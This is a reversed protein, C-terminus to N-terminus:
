EINTPLEISPIENIKDFQYVIDKDSNKEKIMISTINLNKVIVMVEYKEKEQYTISNKDHKHFETIYNKITQNSIELRYSEGDQQKVKSEKLLEILLDKHSKEKLKSKKYNEIEKRYKEQKNYDNYQTMEKKNQDEYFYEEINNNFNYEKASHNIEKEEKIEVYYVLEAHYSAKEFNRTAVLFDNENIVENTEEKKAQLLSFLIIGILVIVLIIM